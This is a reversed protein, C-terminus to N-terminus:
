TARQPTMQTVAGTKTDFMARRIEDLNTGTVRVFCSEGPYDISHIMGDQYIAARGPMLRYTKLAQLEAREGGADGGTRKWETVDTHKTAQGYIAWSEGHDHPPSVRPEKNIHALVEFGLEPDRYLRYLGPTPVRCYREVFAGDQLVAELAKRVQERGTPGGDTALIARCQEAFRALTQSADSM